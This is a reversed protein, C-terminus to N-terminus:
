AEEWRYRQWYPAGRNERNCVLCPGLRPHADRDHGCIVCGKVSMQAEVDLNIGIGDTHQETM